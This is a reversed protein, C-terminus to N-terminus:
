AGPLVQVRVPKGAAEALLAELQAQVPLPPNDQPILGLAHSTLACMMTISDQGQILPSLCVVCSPHAPSDQVGYGEDLRLQGMLANLRDMPTTLQALHASLARQAATRQPFDVLPM